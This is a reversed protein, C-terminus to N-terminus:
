AVAAVVRIRDDPLNLIGKLDSMRIFQSMCAVLGASAVRRDVIQKLRRMQRATLMEPFHYCVLDHIVVVHPKHFDQKLGVYPVLWVDAQSILGHISENQERELSAIQSSIALAWRTTKAGILDLFRHLKKLLRTKRKATDSICLYSAVEIRGIGREVVSDLVDEQGPHAVLLVQVDPKARVLGRALNDVFVGIGESPGLTVGYDCWIGVRM